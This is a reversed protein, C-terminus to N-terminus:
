LESGNFDGLKTCLTLMLESAIQFEGSDGGVSYEIYTCTSECKVLRAGERCDTDRFVLPNDELATLLPSPIPHFFAPFCKSRCGRLMLEPGKVEQLSAQQLLLYM